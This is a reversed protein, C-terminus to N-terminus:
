MIVMADGFSYFRFKEKIAIAYLDLIGRKAGKYKLFADVLMMLSSRPVHFNTILADVTKFEFPPFIFIDTSKKIERAHSELTRVVTTGVAVVSRNEKKAKYIAEASEDPIEFWEHHLKKESINDERVSAFTGLGVHLTVPMHMIKKEELSAFVRPTFHLSATPAAVSAHIADSEAKEFVTQYRDRLADESLTNGKIYKPIPTTGYQDLFASLEGALFRPELFFREDEQFNVNLKKGNPFTITTGINLRRDAICPVIGDERVENVLFLIEAMGGSEKKMKVRAPVVKTTNLVLLSEEPLYKALNYFYDFTVTDTKTDYVFIRASDRPEAPTSAIFGDPLEYEYVDLLSM